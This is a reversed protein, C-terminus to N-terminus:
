KFNTLIQSSNQNGEEIKRERDYYDPNSNSKRKSSNKNGKKIKPERNPYDPNSNSKLKTLNYLLPWLGHFMFCVFTPIDSKLMIRHNNSM